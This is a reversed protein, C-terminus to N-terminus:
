AEPAPAREGTLLRHSGLMAGAVDVIKRNTRRAEDRLMEFAEREEVGHREM